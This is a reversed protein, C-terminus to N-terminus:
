PIGRGPYASTSQFAMINKVSITGIGSGNPDLVSTLMVVAVLSLLLPLEYSIMQAASRLGGILAYKNNSGWGAMMVGVVDLSSMAVLYIIGTALATGPLGLFPSFPLVAFSAIMPGIFVAPAALFVLKDTKAPHMDEKLIMKGVDAVLQLSGQPGTHFPGQRDQMWAMVKRELYNIIAASTIPFMFAFLFAVLYQLFVASFIWHYLQSGIGDAMVIAFHM